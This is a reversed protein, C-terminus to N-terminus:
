MAKTIEKYISEADESVIYILYDGIEKELRNDLIELREPSYNSNFTRIKEFYNNMSNKVNVKDSTKIIAYLDGEENQKIIHVEMIDFNLGYVDKLTDEDVDKMNKLKNEIIKQTKTVNLELVNENGCGTIFFVIFVSVIILLKKM